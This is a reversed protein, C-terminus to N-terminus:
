GELRGPRGSAAAEGLQLEKGGGPAGAQGGEAEAQDQVEEEPRVWGYGEAM